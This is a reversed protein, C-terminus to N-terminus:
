PMVADLWDFARQNFLSRAGAECHSGAGERTTFTLFTKECTLADYLRRATVGIEDEEASCVLTPSRIQDADAGVGYATTLRLYDLPRSVGHVWMGRRLAWGQTPRRLRRHLIWQLLAPPPRGGTLGRAIFGPIRSKMEAALSLQGPDLILAALRPERSAARPALCGGFSIGMLAMRSADVEPRSAAFDLVPGVVAEWDPRFVLGDEIIAAGQGPGDFTICTYGRAVAAAGSFCYAEEATGDYGTCIILTPSPGNETSSPAFLYGHLRSEGYPIEIEDARCEMLEAAAKFAKRHRRYAEVLRPDVPAGILFTYATRFYNSARLYAEKASVRRGNTLSKDAATVLREGLGSWASFWSEPDPERIQKAAALCEGIEAGGSCAHGAARLWQADFLTDDFAFGM